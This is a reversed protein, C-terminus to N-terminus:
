PSKQQINNPLVKAMFQNIYHPFGVNLPKKKIIPTWNIVSNPNGLDDKIKLGLHMFHFVQSFLFLHVLYSQYRFSRLSEIESLQYHIQDALFQPFNFKTIPKTTIPCISAMIGLGFEDVILDDNEGLIM